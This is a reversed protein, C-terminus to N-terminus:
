RASFEREVQRVFALSAKIADFPDRVADIELITWQATPPSWLVKAWQAWDICGKGLTCFFPRHKHHIDDDIEINAPMPGIADKWHAIVIRDRHTSAVKLPDDGALVLHASDPCFHVDSSDTAALLRDIEQSTCFTSHAETHLALSVGKDNLVAGLRNCFDAIATYELGKPSALPGGKAYGEDRMPLGMVLAGSGMENLFDAYESAEGIWRDQSGAFDTGGEIAVDAFFGSAILLGAEEMRSRAAEISGYARLLGRWDFPAFTLEIGDIETKSLVQLMREWFPLPSAMGFNVVDQESKLGWFDPHFFTILDIAVRHTM